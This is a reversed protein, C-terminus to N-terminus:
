FRLMRTCKCEAEAAQHVKRPLDFQLAPEKRTKNPETVTHTQTHLWLGLCLHSKKELSQKRFLLLFFVERSSNVQQSILLLFSGKGKKTSALIRKRQRILVLIIQSSRLAATSCPVSIKSKFRKGKVPLIFVFLLLGNWRSACFLPEGVTGLLIFVPFSKAYFM